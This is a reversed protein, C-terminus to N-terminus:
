VKGAKREKSVIINKFLSAKFIQLDARTISSQHRIKTFDNMCTYSMKTESIYMEDIMENMGFYVNQKYWTWIDKMACYLKLSFVFGDETKIEHTQDDLNIEKM